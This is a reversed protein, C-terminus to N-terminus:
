KARNYNDARFLKSIRKRSYLDGTAKMIGAEIADLNVLDDEYNVFYQRFFELHEKKEDVTYFPNQSLGSAASEMFLGIAGDKPM